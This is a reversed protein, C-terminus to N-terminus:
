GEELADFPRTGYVPRQPDPGFRNVGSDGRKFFTRAFFWIIGVVPIFTVAIFWGSRGIDHCRKVMLALQPWILILSWLAVYLVRFKHGAFIEDLFWNGGLASLLYVLIYCPVFASRGIRGELSLFLQSLPMRRVVRHGVRKGSGSAPAHGNGGKEETLKGDDMRLVRHARDAIEQEHTVILITQGTRENLDWLVQQV